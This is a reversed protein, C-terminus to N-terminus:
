GAQFGASLTVSAKDDAAFASTSAILLSVAVLMKKMM